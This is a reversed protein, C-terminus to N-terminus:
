SIGALKARVVIRGDYEGTTENYFRCTILTLVPLETDQSLVQPTDHYVTMTDDVVYTYTEGYATIIIQDGYALQGLGSFVGPLGYHNTLHGTLVTNGAGTTAPYATNALWGVNEGLWTVDWNGNEYPVGLIETDVGLKPIRIRLQNYSQYNVKMEPLRTVVNPAFGTKPLETPKKPEEKHEPEDHSPEDWKCPAISNSEHEPDPASIPLPEENGYDYYAPLNGFIAPNQATVKYSIIRYDGPELIGINANMLGNEIVATDGNEAVMNMMNLSGEIASGSEPIHDRVTVNNITQTGRNRILLSIELVQRGICREGSWKEGSETIITKTVLYTPDYKLIIRYIDNDKEIEATYDKPVNVIRIDYAVPKGDKNAQMDEFFGSIVNETTGVNITGAKEDGSYIALDISGPRLGDINNEDDFIVTFPVDVTDSNHYLKIVTANDYDDHENTYEPELDSLLRVYYVIEEGDMYRDLDSWSNKWETETITYADYKLSSRRMALGATSNETLSSVVTKPDGVEVDNAYLQVSVAGPRIGDQNDNDYWKVVVSFDRKESKHTCTIHEVDEPNVSIEYGDVPDIIEFSYVIENGNNNKPLDDFTHSWNGQADVVATKDTPVGDAILRITVTEPRIGDQDDADDWIIGAPFSTIETDHNNTITYAFNGETKTFSTSAQYGDSINEETVSYNYETGGDHYRFLDNWEYSPNSASITVPSDIAENERRLQWTIEDPRAGDQNNSDNWEKAVSVSIKEPEYTGSLEILDSQQNIVSSTYRNDLTVVQVTYDATVGSKGPIYQPLSLTTETDNAPVSMTYFVTDDAKIEVVTNSPRIGDRNEDDDWAWKFVFDITDSGHIGTVTLGDDSLNYTYGEPEGAVENITYVVPVGGSSNKPLNEWKYSWTNDTDSGSVTVPDGYPEGDAYLQFLVTEPRIGDQNMADEWKMFATVDTVFTTRTNTVVFTEGENSYSVDYADLDGSGSWFASAGGAIMALILLMFPFLILKNIKRM